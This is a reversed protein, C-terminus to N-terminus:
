VDISKIMFVKRIQKDNISCDFPTINRKNKIYPSTNCNLLKKTVAIDGNIVAYHLPTDGDNDKRNWNLRFSTLLDILTIDGSLVAYHQIKRGNKDCLSDIIHHFNKWNNSKKLIGNLMFLVFKYKKNFCAINIIYMGDYLASYLDYSEVIDKFKRLNDQFIYKVSKHIVCGDLMNLDSSHVSIHSLYTPKVYYEDLTIDIEDIKATFNLNKINM